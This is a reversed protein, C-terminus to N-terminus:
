RHGFRFRLVVQISTPLGRFAGGMRFAVSNMPSFEVKSLRAQNLARPPSSELKRRAPLLHKGRMWRSNVVVKEALEVFEPLKDFFRSFGRRLILNRYFRCSNAM